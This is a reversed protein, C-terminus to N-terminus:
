PDILVPLEPVLAEIAQIIIEALKLSLLSFFIGAVFLGAVPRFGEFVSSRSITRERRISAGRSSTKLAHVSGFCMPWQHPGRPNLTVVCSISTLAPPVQRNMM